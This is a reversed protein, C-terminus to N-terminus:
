QSITVCAIHAADLKTCISWRPVIVTQGPPNMKYKAEWIAKSGGAPGLLQETIPKGDIDLLDPFQQGVMVPNRPNALVKAKGTAILCGADKVRCDVGEFKNIMAAAPEVGKAKALDVMAALLKRADSETAKEQASAIGCMAVAAFAAVTVRILKTM